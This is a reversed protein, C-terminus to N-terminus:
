PIKSAQERERRDSFVFLETRVKPLIKSRVCFFLKLKPKTDETAALLVFVKMEFSKEGERKLKCSM